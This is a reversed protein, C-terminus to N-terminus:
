YSNNDNKKSIIITVKMTIVLIVNCKIQALLLLPYITHM